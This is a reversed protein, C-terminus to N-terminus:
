QKTLFHSTSFPLFTVTTVTTLPHGTMSSRVQTYTCLSFPCAIPSTEQAPLVGARICFNEQCKLLSIPPLCQRSHMSLESITTLITTFSQLSFLQKSIINRHNLGANLCKLISTASVHPYVPILQACSTTQTLVRHSRLTM